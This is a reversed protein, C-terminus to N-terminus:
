VTLETAVFNERDRYSKNSDKAIETVVPFEKTVVSKEERIGRAQQTTHQSMSYKTVVCNGQDNETRRGNIDRYFKIM